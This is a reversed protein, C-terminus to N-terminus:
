AIRPAASVMDSLQRNPAERKASLTDAALEMFRGALRFVSRALTAPYAEDRNEAERNGSVTEPQDTRDTNSPGGDSAPTPECRTQNLQSLAAANSSASGEHKLARLDRQRLQNVCLASSGAVRPFIVTLNCNPSCVIGNGHRGSDPRRRRGFSWDFLCPQADQHPAGVTSRARSM